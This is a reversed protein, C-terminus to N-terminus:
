SRLWRLCRRRPWEDCARVDTFLGPPAMSWSSSVAIIAVMRHGNTHHTGVRATSKQGALTGAIKSPAGSSPPERPPLDGAQQDRCQAPKVVVKKVGSRRARRITASASTGIPRHASSAPHSTRASRDAPASRARRCRGDACSRHGARVPARGIWRTRRHHGVAPGDELPKRHPEVVHRGGIPVRRVGVIARWVDCELHGHEARMSAFSGPESSRCIPRQM